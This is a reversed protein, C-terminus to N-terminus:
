YRTFGFTIDHPRTTRRVEFLCHAREITRAATNVLTAVLQYNPSAEFQHLTPGIQQRNSQPILGTTAWSLGHSFGSCVRWALLLSAGQGPVDDIGKLLNTYDPFKCKKRPSGSATVMRKIGPEHDFSDRFEDPLMSQVARKNNKDDIHLGVLRQLRIERQDPELLWVAAASSELTARLLAFPAYYHTGAAMLDRIGALYDVAVKLRRAALTDVWLDPVQARDGALDSDAQVPYPDNSEIRNLVAVANNMRDLTQQRWHHDDPAPDATM